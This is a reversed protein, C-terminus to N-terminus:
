PAPQPGTCVARSRNACMVASGRRKGQSLVEASGHPSSQLLGRSVGANRAAFPSAGCWSGAHLQLWPASHYAAAAAAAQEEIMEEM